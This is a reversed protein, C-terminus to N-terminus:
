SELWFQLFALRASMQVMRQVHASVNIHIYTYAHTHNLCSGQVWALPKPALCAVFALSWLEGMELGLCGSTGVNWYGVVLFYGFSARLGVILRM